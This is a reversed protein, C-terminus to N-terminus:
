TKISPVHKHNLIKFNCFPRPYVSHYIERGSRIGAIEKGQLYAINNTDKYFKESTDVCWYVNQGRQCMHNCVVRGYNSELGKPDLYTKSHVMNSKLFTVHHTSCWNCLVAVPDSCCGTISCTWERPLCSECVPPYILVVFLRRGTVKWCWRWILKARLKNFVFHQSKFNKLHQFQLHLIKAWFVSNHVSNPNPTEKILLIYLIREMYTGLFRGRKDAIVGPECALRRTSFLKFISHNIHM